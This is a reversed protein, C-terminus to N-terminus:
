PASATRKIPSVEPVDDSSLSELRRKPTLARKPETAARQLLRPEPVSGLVAPQGAKIARYEKNRLRENCFWDIIQTRCLLTESQLQDFDSQKSVYPHTINAMFWARLVKRCAKRYAFHAAPSLNAKTYIPLGAAPKPATVAVTAAAATSASTGTWAAAAFDTCGLTPILNAESAEQESVESESAGFDLPEWDCDFWIADFDVAVEGCAPADESAAQDVGEVSNKSIAM